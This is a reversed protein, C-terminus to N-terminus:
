YGNNGSRSFRKEVCSDCYREIRTAGNYDYSAIKTPIDGCITCWSGVLKKMRNDKVWDSPKTSKLFERLSELDEKSVHIPTIGIFKSEPEPVSRTAFSM